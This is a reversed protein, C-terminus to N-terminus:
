ASRSVRLSSSGCAGVSDDTPAQATAGLKGSWPGAWDNASTGDARYYGVDILALEGMQYKGLYGYTSVVDYRGSSERLGLANLFADYSGAAVRGSGPERM